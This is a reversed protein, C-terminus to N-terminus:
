EEPKEGKFGQFGRPRHFVPPELWKLLELLLTELLRREEPPLRKQSLLAQIEQVERQCRAMEARYHALQKRWLRLTDSTYRGASTLPELTGDPLIRLHLDHDDKPRCPDIFRFGREIKEVSPWTDGKYENCERCCWYLNSYNAILEPHAYAGRIPRHHDICCGAEGGLFFEHRLCYACRYQFDTRLLSRYQTYDSYM